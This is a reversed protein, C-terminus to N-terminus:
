NLKNPSPPSLATPNLLGIRGHPGVIFPLSLANWNRDADPTDTPSPKLPHWNRGDDTSIDTGNPGVTIWTKTPTNYAVASRYGHPPTQSVIPTEFYSTFPIHFGNKQVILNTQAPQDPKSYDGGVIM